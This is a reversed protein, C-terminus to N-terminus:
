DPKAMRRYSRPRSGGAARKAAIASLAAKTKDPGYSERQCSVSCFRRQRKPLVRGCHACTPPIPRAVGRGPKWFRARSRSHSTPLGDLALSRRGGSLAEAFWGVIQEAPHRWLPATMALHSNLPHVVRIGGHADEVFDRRAFTYDDVWRLFY